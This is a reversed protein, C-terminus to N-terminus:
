HKKVPGIILHMRNGMVEHGGEANAKGELDKILRDLVKRGNDMRSMERGRFQVTAKVKDGEAGRATLIVIPTNSLERIRRCVEFGDLGPLMVDLVVLDPEGRVLLALAEEGTAACRVRYGRAELNFRIIQLYRPEDEVVLIDEGAM